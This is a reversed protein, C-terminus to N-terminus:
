FAESFHHSLYLQDSVFGCSQLLQYPADALGTPLFQPTTFGVFSPPSIDAVRRHADLLNVPDIHTGHMWVLLKAATKDGTAKITQLHHLLEGYAQQTKQADLVVICTGFPGEVEKLFGEDLGKERVWMNNLQRNRFHAASLTKSGPAMRYLQYHCGNNLYDAYMATAFAPVDTISPEIAQVLPAHNLLYYAACDARCEEIVAYFEGLDSTTVGPEVTGVAHGACEHLNVMMSFGRKIYLNVADQQSPAIFRECIQPTIPGRSAIINVFNTSRSGHTSCITENNPLNNGLPMVPSAAGAFSIINVGSGMVGTPNSRKYQEPLPLIREIEAAHDVIVQMRQTEAPDSFGVMSQFSGLTKLPDDYTEVFGNVFFVSSQTDKVWALCHADFDREDGTEYYRILHTISSHLLSGTECYQLALVMEKVVKSLIAAIKGDAFACTTSARQLVIQGQPDRAVFGNVGRMAPIGHKGILPTQKLDRIFDVREAQTVSESHTHSGAPESLSNPTMFAPVDADFLGRLAQEKLREPLTVALADLLRHLSERSLSPIMRDGKSEHYIGGNFWVLKLDAELCEREDKTGDSSIFVAELAQKVALSYPSTQIFRLDRAMLGATSLHYLLHQQQAPLQEFGDTNISQIDYQHFRTM